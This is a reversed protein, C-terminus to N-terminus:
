SIPRLKRVCQLRCSGAWYRRYIQQDQAIQSMCLYFEPQSEEAAGDQHVDEIVGV